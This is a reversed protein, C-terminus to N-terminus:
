VGRLNPDWIIKHQQLQMTINDLEHNIIYDAIDVPRIKGFVPSVYVQAKTMKSIKIMEQLDEENGVVCKVVDSAHLLELNKTIMKGNMDSSPCKWDMTILVDDSLKNEDRLSTIDALSVAGNTEIEIQYGNDFLTQILEICDKQLLPEGGTLTIRKCNFSEVKNVIESISMDTYDNGKVAYLTDCYNCLINCGFTRIFVTRKGARSSEGNISCFIENILM